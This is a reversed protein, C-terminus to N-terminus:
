KFADPDDRYEAACPKCFTGATLTGACYGLCKRLPASAGEVSWARHQQRTPELWFAQVAGGFAIWFALWGANAEASRHAIRSDTKM